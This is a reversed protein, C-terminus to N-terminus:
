LTTNTHFATPKQYLEHWMRDHGISYEENENENKKKPQEKLKHQTSRWPRMPNDTSM